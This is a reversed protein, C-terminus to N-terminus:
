CTAKNKAKDTAIAIVTNVGLPFISGPKKDYTIDLQEMNDKASAEYM